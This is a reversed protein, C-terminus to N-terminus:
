TSCAASRASTTCSRARGCSRSRPPSLGLSADRPVGRVDRRSGLPGGHLSGDQRHGERPGRDDAPVDGAPGRLPARERDGGRRALRHHQAAQAARTSASAAQHVVRRSSASPARKVRLPVAVFSQLPSGPPDVRLLAAGARGARAADGRARLARAGGTSRPAGRTAEDPLRAASTSASSSAARATRSGRRCSTAAWRTCAATPWTELVQDLSLSAAIAESVKYLSVAERLRM